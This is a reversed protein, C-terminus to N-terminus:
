CLFSVDAGASNLQRALAWGLENMEIIARIAVLLAASSTTHGVDDYVRRMV